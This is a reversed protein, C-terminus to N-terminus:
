IKVTKKKKKKKKTTKEEVESRSANELDVSNPDVDVSVLNKRKKSKRKKKIEELDDENETGDVVTEMKDFIEEFEADEKDKEEDKVKEEKVIPRMFVASLSQKMYEKHLLKKSSLDHIRLFRDASTTIVVPRTPDCTIGTVAGTFGKFTKLLIEKSKFDLLQLYGKTTGVCSQGDQHTTAITTFSAKPENYKKVPRRQARHDYLLVAGEKTVCQCLSSNQADFCIGRVTTPIPLNLEDHGM